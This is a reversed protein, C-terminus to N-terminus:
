PGDDVEHTTYYTASAVFTIRMVVREEGEALACADTTGDGAGDLALFCCRSVAAACPLHESLCRDAQLEWAIHLVHDAGALRMLRM